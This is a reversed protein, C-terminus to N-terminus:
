QKVLVFAQESGTLGSAFFFAFKQSCPGTPYAADQNTPIAEM